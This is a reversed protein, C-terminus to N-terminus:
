FAGAWFDGASKKVSADEPQSHSLGRAKEVRELRETVPKLAEDLVSKVVEAVSPEKAEAEKKVEAEAKSEADSKELAALREDLPKVAEDVSKKVENILEEKTVTETGGENNETDADALLDTLAAHAEKIKALRSSSIKRGSKMVEAESEGILIKEAVAKFDDLAARIKVPNSEAEKITEGGWPSLSLAKFLAQMADNLREAKRRANLEDEVAGKEIQVQEHESGTFFKKLVSFLGQANKETEVEVEVSEPAKSETEDPKASKFIKFREGNAAKNVLSVANVKVNRLEGPKNPKSM